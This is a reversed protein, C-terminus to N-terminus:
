FFMKFINTDNNSTNSLCHVLMINGFWCFYKLDVIFVFVFISDFITEFDSFLYWFSYIWVMKNTKNPVKFFCFEFIKLTWINEDSVNFM